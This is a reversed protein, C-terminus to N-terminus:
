YHPPPEHATASAGTPSEIGELREMMAGLRERLGALERTQRLGQDSLETVVSELHTIKVELAEFRMAATKM